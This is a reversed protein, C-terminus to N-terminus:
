RLSPLNKPRLILATAYVMCNVEWPTKPKVGGMWKNIAACKRSDVHVVTWKTSRSGRLNTERLLRRYHQDVKLVLEELDPNSDMSEEELEGQPMVPIGAPDGVIGERPSM